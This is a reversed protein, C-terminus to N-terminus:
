SKGPPRPDHNHNAGTGPYDTLEISMRRELMNEIEKVDQLGPKFLVQSNFSGFLAQNKFTKFTRSVPVATSSVVSFFLLLLVVLQRRGLAM